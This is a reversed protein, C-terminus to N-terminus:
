CHFDDMKKEERGRGRERRWDSLHLRSVFVM